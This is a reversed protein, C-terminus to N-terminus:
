GGHASPDPRRCMRLVLRPIANYKLRSGVPRLTAKVGDNVHPKFGSSTVRDLVGALQAASAGAEM